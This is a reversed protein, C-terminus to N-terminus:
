NNGGRAYVVWIGNKDICRSVYSLGRKSNGGHFQFVLTPMGFRPGRGTRHLKSPPDVLAARRVSEDTLLDTELMLCSLRQLCLSM